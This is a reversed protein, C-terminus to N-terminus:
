KLTIHQLLIFFFNLYKSGKKERRGISCYKIGNYIVVISETSNSIWFFLFYARSLAKYPTCVHVKKSCDIFRDPKFKEEKTALELATSFFTMESYLFGIRKFSSQMMLNLGRTDGQQAIKGQNIMVFIEFACKVSKKHLLFHKKETAHRNM